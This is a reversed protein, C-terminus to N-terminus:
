VLACSLNLLIHLKVINSSIFAFKYLYVQEDWFNANDSAEKEKCDKEKRLVKLQEKLSDIDIQQIRVTDM